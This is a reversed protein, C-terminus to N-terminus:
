LCRYTGHPMSKAYIFGVIQFDPCVDYESNRHISKKCIETDHSVYVKIGHLIGKQILIM